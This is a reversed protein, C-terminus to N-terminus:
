SAIAVLWDQLQKWQNGGFRRAVEERRGDLRAVAQRYRHEAEQLQEAERWLTEPTAIGAEVAERYYELRDHYLARREAAAEVELATVRLEQVASLFAERVGAEEAALAHRAAAQERERGAGVLPITVSLMARSSDSAGFESEGRSLSLSLDSSWRPQEEIARLEDARATVQADVRMVLRLAEDLPQASVGSVGGGILLLASLRVCWRGGM